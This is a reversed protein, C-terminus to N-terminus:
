HGNTDEKAALEELAQQVCAINFRLRGNVNLSPILDEEALKKLYGKPLNFSNALADLTIFTNKDVIGM